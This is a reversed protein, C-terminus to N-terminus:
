ILIRGFHVRFDSYTEVSVSGAPLFTANVPGHSEGTLFLPCLFDSTDFSLFSVRTSSGAALSVAITEVASYSPKFKRASLYNSDGLDLSDSTAAVSAIAPVRPDRFDSYDVLRLGFGSSKHLTLRSHSKSM